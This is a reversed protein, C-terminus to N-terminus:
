TVVHLTKHHLVFTVDVCFGQSRWARLENQSQIPDLSGTVASGNDKEQRNRLLLSLLQPEFGSEWASFRTVLSRRRLLKSARKM